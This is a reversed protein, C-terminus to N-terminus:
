KDTEPVIKDDVQPVAVNSSIEETKAPIVDPPKKQIEHAKQPPVDNQVVGSSVRKEKNVNDVPTKAKTITSTKVDLKEKSTSKKPKPLPPRNDAKKM